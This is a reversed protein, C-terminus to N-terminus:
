KTRNILEPMMKRGSSIFYMGNTCADENVAVIYPAVCVKSNLIEGIIKLASALASPCDVLM